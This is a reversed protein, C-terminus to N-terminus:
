ISWVTDRCHLIYWNFSTCILAPSGGSSNTSQKLARASLHLKGVSSSFSCFMWNQTTQARVTLQDLFQEGKVELDCCGLHEFCAPSVYGYCIVEIGHAESGFGDISDVFPAWMRLTVWLLLLLFCRVGLVSM